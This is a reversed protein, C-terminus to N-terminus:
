LRIPPCVNATLSSKLLITKVYSNLFVFISFSYTKEKICDKFSYSIGVISDNCAVTQTQSKLM